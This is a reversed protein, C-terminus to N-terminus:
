LTAESLLCPHGLCGERNSASQSFRYWLVTLADRCRFRLMWFYNGPGIRWMLVLAGTEVVRLDWEKVEVEGNGRRMRTRVRDDNYKRGHLRCTGEAM